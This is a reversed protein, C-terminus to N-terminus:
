GKMPIQFTFCDVGELGAKFYLDMATDSAGSGSGLEYNPIRDPYVAKIAFGALCNAHQEIYDHPGTLTHTADQVAHGLEHAEIFTTANVAGERVKELNRMAAITLIVEKGDSCYNGQPMCGRVNCNAKQHENLLVLRVAGIGMGQTIWYNKINTFAEYAISVESPQFQKGPSQESGTLATSLATAIALSRVFKRM